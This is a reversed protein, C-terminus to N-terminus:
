DGEGGLRGWGEPGSMVSRACQRVELQDKDFGNIIEFIRFLVQKRWGGVATM